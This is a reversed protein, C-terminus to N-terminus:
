VKAEKKGPFDYPRETGDAEVIVAHSLIHEMEALKKQLNEMEAKAWEYEANNELDGYSMAEELLVKNERLRTTKCFRWIEEMKELREAEFKYVNEM